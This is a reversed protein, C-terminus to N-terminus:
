QSHSIHLVDEVKKLRQGHMLYGASMLESLANITDEQSDKVVEVRMEVTNLQSKRGHVDQQIPNIEEKSIGKIAQLDDSTLIADTGYKLYNHSTLKRKIFFFWKCSKKPSKKKPRM